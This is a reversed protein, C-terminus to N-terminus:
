CVLNLQQSLLLSYCLSILNLSTFNQVILLPFFSSLSTNNEEHQTSLRSMERFFTRSVPCSLASVHYVTRANLLAYSRSSLFLVLMSWEFSGKCNLSDCGMELFGFTVAFLLPVNIVYYYTHLLCTIVSYYVAWHM